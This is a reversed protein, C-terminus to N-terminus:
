VMELDVIEIGWGEDPRKKVLENVITEHIILESPSEALRFMRLHNLFPRHLVIEHFALLPPIGKDNDGRMLIDYDSKELNACKLLGIVNFAYYDSWEQGTEENRVFAPFAQFNVVGIKKLVELFSHSALPVTYDLFHPMAEDEQFDVQFYLPPLSEKRVEVGRMFGTDDRCPPCKTIGHDLYIDTRLLYYDPM